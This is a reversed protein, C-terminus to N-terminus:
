SGLVGVGVEFSDDANARVREFSMPEGSPGCSLRTLQRDSPRMKVVQLAEFVWRGICGDQFPRHKLRFRALHVLDLREEPGLHDCAVRVAPVNRLREGAPIEAVKAQVLRERRNAFPELSCGRVGGRERDPTLEPHLHLHETSRDIVEAFGHSEVWIAVGVAQPQREGEDLHAAV